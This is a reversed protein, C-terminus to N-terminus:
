TSANLKPNRNGARGERPSEKSDTNRLTELDEHILEDLVSVEGALMAARLHDELEIIHDETRRAIM